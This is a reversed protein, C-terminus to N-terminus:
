KAAAEAAVEQPEISFEIDPFMSRQCEVFQEAREKTFPGFQGSGENYTNRFKILYYNIIM